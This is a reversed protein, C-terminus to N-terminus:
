SNTTIDYYTLIQPLGTQEDELTGGGNVEIRLAGYDAMDGLSVLADAIEEDIDIAEELTYATIRIQFRWSEVVANDGQRYATYSVCPLNNINSSSFPTPEIGTRDGIASLLTTIVNMLVDGSFM